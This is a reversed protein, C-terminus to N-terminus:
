MGTADIVNEKIMEFIRPRGTFDSLCRPEDRSWKTAQKDYMASPSDLVNQFKDMSLIADYFNVRANLMMETCKVFEIRDEETECHEVVIEHLAKAHDQDMGIHLYLFRAEVDSIGCSLRLGNLISSYLLPVILESGFYIMALMGITGRKKIKDVVGTMETGISDPVVDIYSRMLKGEVTKLLDKFLEHHPINEVLDRPIKKKDLEMLTEEDYFGMEESLNERLTVKHDMSDLSEILKKLTPVFGSNFKSYCSLFFLILDATEKFGYSACGISEIM